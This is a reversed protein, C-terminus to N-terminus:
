SSVVDFGVVVKSPSSRVLAICDSSSEGADDSKELTVPTVTFRSRPSPLPSVDAEVKTVQDAFSFTETFCTM